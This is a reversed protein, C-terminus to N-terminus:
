ARQAARLEATQLLYQKVQDSLESQALVDKLQASSLKSSFEISYALQTFECRLAAIRM